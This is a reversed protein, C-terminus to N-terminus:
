FLPELTSTNMMIMDSRLDRGVLQDGNLYWHQMEPFLPLHLVNGSDKDLYDAVITNNYSRVLQHAATPVLLYFDDLTNNAMLESIAGLVQSTNANKLLVDKESNIWEEEFQLNLLTVAAQRFAKDFNSESSEIGVIFGNWIGTGDATTYNRTFVMAKGSIKKNEVSFTYDVDYSPVVDTSNGGDYISAYVSQASDVTYGNLNRTLMPLVESTFYQEPTKFNSVSIPANGLSMERVEEASIISSFCIRDTECLSTSPLIYLPMFPQFVYVLTNEDGRAFFVFGTMTQYPRIIQLDAGWGEPIFTTAAKEKPDTWKVVRSENQVQSEIRAVDGTNNNNLAIQYSSSQIITNNSNTHTMLKSLKDINEVLMFATRGSRANEANWWESTAIGGDAMPVSSTFTLIDAQNRSIDWYGLPLEPRQKATLAEALEMKPEHSSLLSALLLLLVCFTAWGYRILLCRNVQVIIPNLL